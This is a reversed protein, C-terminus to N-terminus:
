RNGTAMKGLRYATVAKKGHKTTKGCSVSLWSLGTILGIPSMWFTSNLIRMACGSRRYGRDPNENRCGTEGVSSSIESVM